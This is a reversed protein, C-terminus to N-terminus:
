FERSNGKGGRKWSLVGISKADGYMSFQHYIRSVSNVETKLVQLVGKLDRTDGDLPFVVHM